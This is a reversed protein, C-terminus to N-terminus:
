SNASKRSSKPRKKEVPKRGAGKQRVRGRDIQDSELLERRGKSVTHADLGLLEAIHCDGGHGEKISELGAFLRRQREDLLSYFLVIAAHLEEPKAKCAAGPQVAHIEKKSRMLKQRRRQGSGACLYVYTAGLKERWLRGDGVLGLLAHKTEVGLLADLEGASMGAESTDVLAKATQVLNGHKSFFVRRHQWLGLWDYSPTRAMTYYSGRHSYSSLYGLSQLKRLVTMRAPTDLVKKLEDLTAILHEELFVELECASYQEPRM